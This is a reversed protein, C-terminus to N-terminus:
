RWAPAGHTRTQIGAAPRLTRDLRLGGKNRLLIGWNSSAPTAPM